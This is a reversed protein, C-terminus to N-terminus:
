CNRRSVGRDADLPVPPPQHWARHHHMTGEGSDLGINNSGAGGSAYLFDGVGRKAQDGLESAVRSTASRVIALTTRLTM